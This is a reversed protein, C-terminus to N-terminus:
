RGQTRISRAVLLMFDFLVVRANANRSIDRRARDTESVLTEVNGVNIFPSFRNSFEEESPTLSVINPMRLNYIFNERTMRSCYRLYRITKERGFDALIETLDFLDKLKRAYAARMMKRYLNGFEGAEGQATALEDAKIVSGEAKRAIIGAEPASLGKNRQLWLSVDEPALPKFNIRQTRSFITPLLLEPEDSVLFFLTNPWPEEILKLLKNATETNMAEPLWILYIKFASAYNTMLATRSIGAAEQVYIVPQSNGADILELWKERRAYPDESVFTKWEELFDSSLPKSINPKRVVPYVFHMDPNAFQAHQLCSPCRGCSDGNRRDTCQVYQAAAIATQLKGIGPRGGFLLAHPLRNADTM